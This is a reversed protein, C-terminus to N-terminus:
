RITFDFWNTCHDNTIRTKSAWNARQTIFCKMSHMTIFAFRYLCRFCRVSVRWILTVLARVSFRNPWFASRHANISLCVSFREILWDFWNIEVNINKEISNSYKNIARQINLQVWVFNYPLYLFEQNYGGFLIFSFLLSVIGMGSFSAAVTPLVYCLYFRCLSNCKDNARKLFEFAGSNKDLMSACVM